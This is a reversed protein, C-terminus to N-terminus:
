RLTDVWTAITQAVQVEQGTYMHDGNQIMASDVRGPGSSQRQLSSKLLNLDADKGVDGNTGHFALLPCHVRTVAPNKTDTQTGWFDKFESPTNVIDMMTAASIYSPFSRKPDRVL